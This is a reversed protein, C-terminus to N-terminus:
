QINSNLTVSHPGSDRQWELTTRWTGAMDFKAEVTYRGAVSSKKVDITAFMPAGPMPMTSRAKVDGVDVLGGDASRFEVVFSDGGHRIGDRASLVVVDLDGSKVHQRETLNAGASQSCAGIVAVTGFTCMWVLLRRTM